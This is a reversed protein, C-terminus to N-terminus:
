FSAAKWVGSYQLRRSICGSASISTTLTTETKLTEMRLLSVKKKKKSSLINSWSSSQTPLIDALFSFNFSFSTEHKLLAKLGCCISEKKRGKNSWAKHFPMIKLWKEHVKLKAGQLNVWYLLLWMWTAWTRRCPKCHWPEPRSARNGYVSYFLKSQSAAQELYFIMSPLLTGELKSYIM